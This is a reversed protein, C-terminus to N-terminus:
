LSISVGAGAYYIPTIFYKVTNITVAPQLTVARKKNAKSKHLFGIGVGLAVNGAVIAGIGFVQEGFGAWDEHNPANAKRNGIMKLVAGTVIVSSGIIGLTKGAIYQKRAAQELHVPDNRNAKMMEHSPHLPKQAFPSTCICILLLFVLTRKM